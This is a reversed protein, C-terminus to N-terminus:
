GQIIMKKKLTRIKDFVFLLRQKEINKFVQCYKEINSQMTKRRKQEIYEIYQSDFNRSEETDKILNEKKKDKNNDKNYYFIFSVLVLIFTVTIWHYNKEIFRDYISDIPEFCYQNSLFIAILLFFKKM